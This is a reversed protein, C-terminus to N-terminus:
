KARFNGEPEWDFNELYHLTEKKLAPTILPHNALLNVVGPATVSEGYSNELDLSNRSEWFFLLCEYSGELDFEPANKPLGNTFFGNRWIVSPDWYGAERDTTLMACIYEWFALAFDNYGSNTTLQLLKERSSAKTAPSLSLLALLPAVDPLSEEFLDWDNDEKLVTLHNKADSTAGIDWCELFSSVIAESHVKEFPNLALVSTMVVPMKLFTWDNLWGRLVTSLEATSLELTQSIKIARYMLELFEVHFSDGHADPWDQATSIMHQLFELKVVPSEVAQIVQATLRAGFELSFTEQDVLTRIQGPDLEHVRAELDEFDVSTHSDEFGEWSDLDSLDKPLM